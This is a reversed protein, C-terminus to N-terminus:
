PSPMILGHFYSNWSMMSDRVLLSIQKILKESIYGRFLIADKLNFLKDLEDLSIKLGLKDYKEEFQKLLEEKEM